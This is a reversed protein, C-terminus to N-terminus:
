DVRQRTVNELPRTYQRHHERHISRTQGQGNSLSSNSQKHWKAVNCLNQCTTRLRHQGRPVLSNRHHRHHRLHPFTPSLFWFFKWLSVALQEPTCIYKSWHRPTVAYKRVPPYPCGVGMWVGVLVGLLQRCAYVYLFHLGAGVSKLLNIFKIQWLFFETM